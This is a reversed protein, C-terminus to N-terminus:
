TKLECYIYDLRKNKPVRVRIFEAPSFVDNDKCQELREIAIEIDEKDFIWLIQNGQKCLRTEGSEDYSIGISVDTVAGKKSSIVSADFLTNISVQEGKLVRKLCNLLQILGLNDFVINIAMSDERKFHIM